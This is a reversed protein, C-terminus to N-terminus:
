GVLARPDLPPYLTVRVFASRPRELDIGLAAWDRGEQLFSPLGMLDVGELPLCEEPKDASSLLELDNRNLGGFCEMMQEDRAGWVTAEVATAGGRQAVWLVGELLEVGRGQRSAQRYIDFSVLQVVGPPSKPSHFIQAVGLDDMELTLAVNEGFREVRTSGRESYMSM